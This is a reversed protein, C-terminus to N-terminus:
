NIRCMRPPDVGQVTNYSAFVRCVLVTYCLIEYFGSCVKDCHIMQREPTADSCMSCSWDDDDDLDEPVPDPIAAVSAANSVISM